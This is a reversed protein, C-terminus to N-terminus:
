ADRPGPHTLCDFTARRGAIEDPTAIQLMAVLLDHRTTIFPVNEPLLIIREPTVAREVLLTGGSSLPSTITVSTKM